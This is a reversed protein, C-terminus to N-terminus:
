RTRGPPRPAPLATPHPSSASVVEHWLAVHRDFVRDLSYERTAKARAHDGLERRRAPDNMLTALAPALLAPRAPPVVVGCDDALMEAVAGVDTSVIARGLAMAEVVVNPFGETHSPLVFLDCEAMLEWARSHPQEGLFSVSDLAGFTRRLSRLYAEDCPGVVLLRWEPSGVEIWAALLDEIGKPRLVWGVFLATRPGGRDPRPMPLEALDVGNPMRGVRAGPLHRAIAAETHRDLVVVKARRIVRTMLRWELSNAEAIQPVRGFHLQYVVPLRASRAIILLVLDRVVGLGGSTKVHVVDTKGGAVTRLLAWAGATLQRAGDIARKVLSFDHVARWRVAIDIVELEVGPHRLAQRRIMHMGRAIGGMPPPLPGVVCVRVPEQPEETREDDHGPRGLQGIGENWQTMVGAESRETM